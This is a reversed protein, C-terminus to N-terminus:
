PFGRLVLPVYLQELAGPQAVLVTRTADDTLGESDRVELRVTYTGAASFTHRAQTSSSWPIDFTGDDQWDWRYESPTGDEPDTSSSADFAFLTTTDGSSPTVSFAATPPTNAGEGVIVTRSQSDTQEWNDRVQVRVSFTGPIRYTRERQADSGWDTDYTGDDQWDWRYQLVGSEPDSSGSADFLFTTATTGSAPDVTLNAAPPANYVTVQGSAEDTADLVDKAQLRVTFVATSQWDALTFSHSTTGPYDWATDYVGDDDWDWRVQLGTPNTVDTSGSSDFQFVTTSDGQQPTVTFHAQPRTNGVIRALVKTGSVMVALWNMAGGALAVDRCEGGLYVTEFDMTGLLYVQRARCNAPQLSDEAWAVLYRPAQRFTNTVGCAAATSRTKWFDRSKPQM